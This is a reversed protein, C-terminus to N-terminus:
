NKYVTKPLIEFSIKKHPYGIKRGGNTSLVTREWQITKADDKDLIM